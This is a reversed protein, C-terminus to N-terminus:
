EGTIEYLDLWLWCLVTKILFLYRKLGKDDAWDFISRIRDISFFKAWPLIVLYLWRLEENRHWEHGWSRLRPKLGYRQYQTKQRFSTRLHRRGLRREREVCQGHWPAYPSPLAMFVFVEEHNEKARFWPPQSKASLSTLALEAASQDLELSSSLLFALFFLVFVTVPHSTQHQWCTRQLRSAARPWHRFSTRKDRLENTLFDHENTAGHSTFHIRFPQESGLSFIWSLSARWVVKCVLQLVDLSRLHWGCTRPIVKVAIFKVSISRQEFNSKRCRQRSCIM